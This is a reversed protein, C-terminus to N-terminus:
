APPLPPQSYRRERTPSPDLRVLIKVNQASQSSIDPFQGPGDFSQRLKPPQPLLGRIPPRMQFAVEAAIGGDVADTRNIFRCNRVQDFANTRGLWRAFFFAWRTQTTPLGCSPQQRFLSDFPHRAM